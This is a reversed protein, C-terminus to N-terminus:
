TRFSAATTSSKHASINASDASDYQDLNNRTITLLLRQEYEGEELTSYHILTKILDKSKLAKSQEVLKARLKRFVEFKSGTNLLYFYAAVSQKPSEFVQVEHLADPPRQLPVIGCGTTFCHQGFYSNGNIAFRSTGWASELASQALVMSTPITNIRFLLQDITSKLNQTNPLTVKYEKTWAVLIKIAQEPLSNSQIFRNNINQLIHRQKLIDAQVQHICPVLYNIFAQKRETMNQISKFDPKPAQNSRSQPTEISCNSLLISTFFVLTVLWLSLLGGTFVVLKNSFSIM